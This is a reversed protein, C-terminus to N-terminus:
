SSFYAYNSTFIESAPKYEPIQVLLCQDCVYVKLPYFLEPEQANRSDIFSNSAPATGLDCFVETLPASCFRCRLGSMDCVGNNSLRHDSAAYIPAYRAGARPRSAM